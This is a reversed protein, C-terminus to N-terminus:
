PLTVPEFKEKQMHEKQIDLRKLCEEEAAEESLSLSEVLAQILSSTAHIITAMGDPLLAFANNGDQYLTYEEVFIRNEISTKKCKKIGAGFRAAIIGEIHAEAEQESLFVKYEKKAEELTEPMADPNTFWVWSVGLAEAIKFITDIKPNRKGSEWQGINQYAVGLIEALDAQTMHAAIRAAKIREGTSM